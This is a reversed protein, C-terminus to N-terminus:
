TRISGGKHIFENMLNDLDWCSLQLRLADWTGFCNYDTDSAAEGIKLGKTELRLGKDLV